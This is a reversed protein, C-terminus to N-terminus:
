RQVAVAIELIAAPNARNAVVREMAEALRDRQAELENERDLAKILSVRRSESEMRLCALRDALEVAHRHRITLGGNVEKLVNLLENDSLHGLNTTM